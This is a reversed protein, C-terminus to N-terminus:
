SVPKTKIECIAKNDLIAIGFTYTGTLKVRRNVTDRETEFLMVRKPAFIVSNKHILFASYANLSHTPLYNSILIRVGMFEAVLGERVVDPRAYVLAQSSAIDKYLDLYMKPNIVLVFDEPALDKGQSAVAELAEAIWDADFFVPAASKDLEPVGTDAIIMDLIAKDIARLIANQGKREIEAVLRESLKEIDAYPIQTYFGAEKLTTSVVTYLGTKETLSGGVSSLVDADFSRVVPIQVVDGMEGQIEDSKAIYAVLNATPPSPLPLPAEWQEKLGGRKIMELIKAYRNEAPPLVEGKSETKQKLLENKLTEFKEDIRKLISEIDVQVVVNESM